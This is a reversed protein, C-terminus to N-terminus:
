GQYNAQRRLQTPSCGYAAKFSGSFHPYSGFGTREAIDQLPLRTNCVLAHAQTLRTKLLYEHLTLGTSAQFLRNLHYEHYGVLVALDKNTIKKSYNKQIHDQVFRIKGPAPDYKKRHLQLLVLKLGTESSVQGLPDGASYDKVISLILDGMETAIDVFLHGNLFSSDPVNDAFVAMTNWKSPETEPAIPLGSRDNRSALDFNLSIFSFGSHTTIKYISGGCCYFLCGPQLDYRSSGIQLLGSGETVYFLRCDTVKVTKRNYRMEYHLQAAFRLKPDLHHINM